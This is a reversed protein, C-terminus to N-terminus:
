GGHRGRRRHGARRHRICGTEGRRAGESRPRHEAGRLRRRLRRQRDVRRRPHAGLAPYPTNLRLTGAGAVGAAALLTAGALMAAVFTRLLADLTRRMHIPRGWRTSDKRIAPTTGLNVTLM